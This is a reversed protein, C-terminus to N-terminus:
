QDGPSPIRQKRLHGSTRSGVSAHPSRTDGQKRGSEPFHRQVERPSRTVKRSAQLGQGRPPVPLRATPCRQSCPEPELLSLTLHRARCSGMLVFDAVLCRWPTARTGVGQGEEGSGLPAPLTPASWPGWTLAGTGLLLGCGQSLTLSERELGAKDEPLSRWEQTVTGAHPQSTPPTKNAEANGALVPGAGQLLRAAPSSLCPVSFPPTM